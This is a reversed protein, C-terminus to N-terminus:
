NTTESGMDLISHGVDEIGKLQSFLLAPVCPVCAMVHRSCVTSRDRLGPPKFSLVNVELTKM